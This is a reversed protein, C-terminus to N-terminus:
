LLSAALSRSTERQRHDAEPSDTNAEFEGTNSESGIIYNVITGSTILGLHHIRLKMSVHLNM